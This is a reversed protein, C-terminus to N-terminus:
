QGTACQVQKEVVRGADFCWAIFGSIFSYYCTSMVVVMAPSLIRHVDFIDIAHFNFLFLFPYFTPLM